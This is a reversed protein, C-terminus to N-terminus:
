ARELYSEWADVSVKVTPDADDGWLERGDFRVTYLWQPNEGAGRANSDPFVHFGIVREVIGLRGRVYRPLRTHTPPNINRARVSDGPKFAPRTNTDRETPGGRHLVKLVDGPTLIRKVAKPPRLAHGVVIEDDSVLDREKLLTELGAFWLQYYSMSLYEGPDRNERAFRGMDINWGGPMGMALTLAFARKEWDEHFAPEDPEPVVPGFGQAGGLDQGGNM